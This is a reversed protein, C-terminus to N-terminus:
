AVELDADPVAKSKRSTSPFPGLLERLTADEDAFELGISIRLRNLLSYLDRHLSDRTATSAKAADKAGEQKFNIGRLEPLFAKLAALDVAQLGANAAETPYLTMAEIFTQLAKLTNPFDKPSIDIDLGFLKRTYADRTYTLRIANRARVLKRHAAELAVALKGTAGSRQAVKESRGGIADEFDDTLQDLANFWAEDHGRPGLRALYRRCAPSLLRAAAITPLPKWPIKTTSM